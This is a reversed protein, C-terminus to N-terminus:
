SSRSARDAEVARRWERGQRSSHKSRATCTFEGIAQFSAASGCSDALYTVARDEPIGLREAEAVADINAGLFVFEWGHKETMETIMARVREASYRRSANELGDTTIVFIVKGAKYKRPMYRQVREIHRIAGGIADLLATSGRTEYDAATLPAIDNIDIRDHLVVSEHDFLVTSVTARGPASKHKALVSNFGGVTDSELGTMSGSRDLLFVLETLEANAGDPAQQHEDGEAAQPRM